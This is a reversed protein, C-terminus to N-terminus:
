YLCNVTIINIKIPKNRIFRKLSFNEKKWNIQVSSCFQDIWTTVTKMDRNEDNVWLNAVVVTTGFKGKHFGHIASNSPRGKM